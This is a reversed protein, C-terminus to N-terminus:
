DKEPVPQNMLWKVHSVHRDWVESNKFFSHSVRTKRFDTGYGLVDMLAAEIVTCDYLTSSFITSDQIKASGVITSNCIIVRGNIVTEGLIISAKDLTLDAGHFHSQANIRGGLTGDGNVHRFMLSFKGCAYMMFFREPHKKYLMKVHASLNKAVTFCEDMSESFGGSAMLNALSAAESPNLDAKVVHRVPKMSRSIKPVIDCDKYYSDPLPCLRAFCEDPKAHLLLGREISAIKKLWVTPAHGNKRHGTKRYCNSEWFQYYADTGSDKRIPEFRPLDELEHRKARIFSVLNRSM